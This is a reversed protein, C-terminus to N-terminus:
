AAARPLALVAAGKASELADALSRAVIAAEGTLGDIEAVALDDRVTRALLDLVEDSGAAIRQIQELEAYQRDAEAVQAAYTELAETRREISALSTRLARRRADLVKAIKTGKAQDPEQKALRSYERLTEAIDWLQRPLASENRQRDILDRRHVTSTRVADAAKTARALLQGADETLDASRVYRGQADRLQAARRRDRKQERKQERKRFIVALSGWMAWLVPVSLGLLALAAPFKEDSVVFTMVIAIVGAVGILPVPDVLGMWPNEKTIRQGPTKSRILDRVENSLDPDFTFDPVALLTVPANKKRM